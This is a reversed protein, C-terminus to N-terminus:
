TIGAILTEELKRCELRLLEVFEYLNVEGTYTVKLAGKNDKEFM